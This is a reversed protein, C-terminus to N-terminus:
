EEDKGGSHKKVLEDFYEDERYKSMMQDRKDYAGKSEQVYVIFPLLLWLWGVSQGCKIVNFYFILICIVSMIITWKYKLCKEIMYGGRDKWEINIKNDLILILKYAEGYINNYM